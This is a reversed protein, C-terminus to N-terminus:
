GAPDWPHSEMIVPLVPDPPTSVEIILKGDEVQWTFDVVDGEFEAPFDTTQSFSDPGTAAWTGRFVPWKVTSSSVQTTTWTGDAAMDLTFVGTNEASVAAGSLGAAELDEETITTTWSGIPFGAPLAAQSAGSGSAAAISSAPSPSAGAACGILIASLGFIATVRAIRPNM